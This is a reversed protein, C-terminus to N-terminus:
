ATSSTNFSHDGPAEEDACANIKLVSFVCGEAEYAHRLGNLSEVSAALGVVAGGSGPFKAAAKHARAIEIMRLNKAGLAADGYVKRRLDFNADMLRALEDRDGKVIATKAQDSLAGFQAM